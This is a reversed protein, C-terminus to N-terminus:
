RDPLERVQLFPSSTTVDRDPLMLFEQDKDIAEGAMIIVHIDKFTRAGNYETHVEQDIKMLREKRKRKQQDTGQSLVFKLMKSMEAEWNELIRMRLDKEGIDSAWLFQNHLHDRFAFFGRVVRSMVKESTLMEKSIAERNRTYVRENAGNGTQNEAENAVKETNRIMQSIAPRSRSFVDERAGIENDPIDKSSEYDSMQAETAQM